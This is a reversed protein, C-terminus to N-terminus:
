KQGSEMPIGCLAEASALYEQQGELVTALSLRIQTAQEEFSVIRSQIKSLAFESVARAVKDNPIKTIKEALGSLLSKSNLLGFSEETIASIFVELGEQQEQGSKISILAYDLVELYQEVVTKPGPKLKKLKEAVAAM